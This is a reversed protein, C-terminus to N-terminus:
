RGEHQPTILIIVPQQTIMIVQRVLRSWWAGWVWAPADVAADAARQRLRHVIGSRAVAATLYLSCHMVERAAREGTIIILFLLYSKCHAIRQDVCVWEAKSSCCCCCCCCFTLYLCSNVAEWTVREGINIILFLLYSKCPPIRQDVSVSESHKVVAAFFTLYLCYNM